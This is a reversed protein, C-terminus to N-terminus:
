FHQKYVRDNITISMVVFGDKLGEFDKLIYDVTAIIIRKVKYPSDTEWIELIDNERYDRDDKRVEFLKKYLWMKKFYEHYCKIKHVAIAM